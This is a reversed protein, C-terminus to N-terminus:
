KKRRKLMAMGGLVLLSMTAPEPVVAGVVQIDDFGTRRGAAKDSNTDNACKVYLRFTLSDFEKGALSTGTLDMTVDNWIVSASYRNSAAPLATAWNLNQDFIALSATYNDDSSLLNYTGTAFYSAGSVKKYVSDFVISDVTFKGGADASVTFEFYDDAWTTSDASAEFCQAAFVNTNFIPDATWDYAGVLNLGSSSWASGSMGAVQTSPSLDTEFDYSVLTAAPALTVVMGLVLLMAVIKKMEIM